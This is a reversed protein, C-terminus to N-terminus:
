LAEPSAVATQIPAVSLAGLRVRFERRLLLLVIALKGQRRKM